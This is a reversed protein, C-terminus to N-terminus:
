ATLGAIVLGAALTRGFSSHDAAGRAQAVIPQISAVLGQGVIILLFAVNAGLGGAALADSGVRGMVITDTIGMAMQALQATALPAALKLIEILERRWSPRGVQTRSGDM